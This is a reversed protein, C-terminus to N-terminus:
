QRELTLRIRTGSFTHDGALRDANATLAMDRLFTDAAHALTVINNTLQWTGVLDADIDSGDEDAGPVFLHGETTLDANLRLSLTAGEDLWDVVAGNSTTTFTLAGFDGAAGYMGAVAQVTLIESETPSESCSVLLVSFLPIWVAHIVKQM